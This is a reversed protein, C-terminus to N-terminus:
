RLADGLEARSTVGLKTYANQLHNDVTRASLFLREAIEKSTLGNSALQAIERERPSLPVVSDVAASGPTRAGQCVALLAEARKSAAAAERQNGERRLARALGAAAEAALLSAGLRTLQEEAAAFPEASRGAMARIYAIRAKAFAGDVPGISDLTARAWEADGMRAAETVSQLAPHWQGREVDALVAARVIERAEGPRRLAILCWARGAATDSTMYHLDPPLSELEALLSAATEADDLQGVAAAMGSLSIRRGPRLGIEDAAARSEAFWLRADALRGSHLSSEGLVGALWCRMFPVREELSTAHAVACIADAEAFRGLAVLCVGRNLVHTNPDLFAKPDDQALQQELTHVCLQEAEDLRGVMLLATVRPSASLMLGPVDTPVPGLLELAQQPRGDHAHVNAEGISVVRGMGFKTLSERHEEVVALADAPRNCGWVLNNVRVITVLTEELPSAGEPLPVAAVAEAEEARGMLFLSEALLHQGTPSAEVQQAATALRITSPLDMASRALRAGALLVEQQAPLGADLQWVAIRLPDDRRPEARATLLDIAQQVLRRRALQGMTSRLVEGYLPHSLRVTSEGRVPDVRVLGRQELEIAHDLMGAPELDTVLLPEAVAILALTSGLEGDVDSLRETVLEVLRPSRAPDVEIHVSGDPVVRAAGSSMASLLLERLYLANGGSREWLGTISAQDVPRGIARVATEAVAAEDLLDLELRRLGFSRVLSDGASPLALGSRVTGVVFLVDAAQLQIALSISAEDLYPLDDVLIVFRGREQMRDRLVAFLRMPDISAREDIVADPILHALAAYPMTQSAETAVIRGTGHGRAALVALAEDALRTKGVGAPGSIIVGACAADDVLELLHRLEADRGVFPWTSGPIVAFMKVAWRPPHRVLPSAMLYDNSLGDRGLRGFIVM